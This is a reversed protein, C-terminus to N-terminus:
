LSFSLLTMQVLIESFSSFLKFIYAQPFGHKSLSLIFPVHPIHVRRYFVARALFMM